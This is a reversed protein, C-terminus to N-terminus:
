PGFGPLVPVPVTTATNQGHISRQLAAQAGDQLPARFGLHSLADDDAVM